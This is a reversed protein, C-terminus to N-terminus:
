TAPAKRSGPRESSSYQRVLTAATPRSIPAARRFPTRRTTCVLVTPMWPLTSPWGAVSSLGTRGFPESYGTIPAYEQPDPYYRQYTGSNGKVLRSAAITTNGAKISGRQYKFQQNFVRVNGKADALSTTRFAQVYNVNVLLLVFMGLCALSLRLLARNM